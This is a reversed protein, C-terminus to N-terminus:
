SVGPAAAGGGRSPKAGAKIFPVLAQAVEVPKQYRAAPDKALLRAVVAALEAPVDPRLASLPAAEKEPHAMIAKLATEEHFPPRGALLCYLTCGLSYLDARIDAQRADLAQEPALYEPTGMVTNEATLGPGQGKERALRALGFDLVKVVGKPTLMLNHPKLD